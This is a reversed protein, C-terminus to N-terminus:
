VPTQLILQRLDRSLAVDLRHLAASLAAVFQDAPLIDTDAGKLVLACTQPNVACVEVLLGYASTYLGTKLLILMRDVKVILQDLNASTKTKYDCGFTSQRRQNLLNRVTGICDISEGSIKLDDM